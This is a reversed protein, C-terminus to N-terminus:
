SRRIPPPSNRCIRLFEAGIRNDDCHRVLARVTTWKAHSDWRYQIEIETGPPYSKPGIFGIGAAGFDCGQGTHLDNGVGYRVEFEIPVRPQNRREQKRRPAPFVSTVITGILYDQIGNSSETASLRDEACLQLLLQQQRTSLVQQPLSSFNRFMWILRLREGFSPRVYRAGSETIVELAGRTVKDLWM